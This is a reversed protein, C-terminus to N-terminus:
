PIKRRKGTFCVGFKPHGLISGHFRKTHHSSNSAAPLASLAIDQDEQKLEDFNADSCRNQEISKKRRDRLPRGSALIIAMSRANQLKTQHVHKHRGTCHTRPIVFSMSFCSARLHRHLDFETSQIADVSWRYASILKKM